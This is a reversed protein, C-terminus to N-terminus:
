ADTDGEADSSAKKPPSSRKVVPAPDFASQGPLIMPVGQERAFDLVRKNARINEYIDGTGGGSARVVDEFTDLNAAIAMGAGRAEKATDWWKVGTAVHRYKVDEITANRPLVLRGDLIWLAIQWRTIAELLELLDERKAECSRLYQMLAARSGFFTTHSEDYFSYPIDLSKLAIGIVAQMFQQFEGSPTQSTMFAADSGPESRLDILQQGQGFDVKLPPPATGDGEEDDEGGSAHPLGNPDNQQASTFKLGFLQEVKSRALAYVINENVDRFDNLAAAVPSIGRVQDFRDLHAHLLVDRAPIIGKFKYGGISGGRDCIVYELARGDGDTRVGHRYKEREFGKPLDFEPTRCRDSEIGQLRGTSRKVLLGDGAVCRGAEALRIIKDFRHRGAADCNEKRCFDRWLAELPIDIRDDGSTAQFKFSAVYDLHKRIAWAAIAFNRHIDHTTAVVKLRDSAGLVDDEHRMRVLVDRRRGRTEVADYGGGGGGAAYSALAFDGGGGAGLGALADAAADLDTTAPGRTM